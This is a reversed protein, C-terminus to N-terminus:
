MEDMQAVVESHIKVLDIDNRDKLSERTHGTEGEISVKKLAKNFKEEEPHFFTAAFVGDKNEAGLAVRTTKNQGEVEVDCKTGKLDSKIKVNLRTQNEPMKIGACLALLRRAHGRVGIAHEQGMGIKRKQLEKAWQERKADEDAKENRERGKKEGEASPPNERMYANEKELENNKGRIEEKEDSIRKARAEEKNARATAEDREKETKELKKKLEENSEVEKDDGFELFNDKNKDIDIDSFWKEESWNATNKSVRLWCHEGVLKKIKDRLIPVSDKYASISIKREDDKTNRVYLYTGDEHLSDVVGFDYWHFNTNKRPM